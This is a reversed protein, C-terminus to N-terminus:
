LSENKRIMLIGDRISLMVQEVRPDNTVMTNLAVIGITEKETSAEANLVKDSWLVNDILMFGGPNLKEIALRYYNPYQEKDGDVFILDFESTLGPIIELANGIILEIQQAQESQSFHKHLTNELEENIEITILKGEKTLGKALALASYGTFTGIELIRKPKMMRSIFELFKGQVKGSLMRPYYTTLHTRRNVEHMLLDEDSTHDDLYQELAPDIM